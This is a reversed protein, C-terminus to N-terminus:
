VDYSEVKLDIDNITLIPVSKHWSRIAMYLKIKDIFSIKRKPLYFGTNFIPMNATWIQINQEGLYNFTCETQQWSEPNENISKIVFSTPSLKM